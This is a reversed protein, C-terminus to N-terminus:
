GGRHPSPNGPRHVSELHPFSDEVIPLRLRASSGSSAVSPQALPLAGSTRIEKVGQRPSAHAM